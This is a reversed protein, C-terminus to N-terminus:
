VAAAGGVIEAIEQTIAAQRAKNYSLQLEDILNGANDTAAKMAVMRAAMECSINEVVSRYVRAEIYRVMLVDIIEQAAPEYIYDWSATQGGDVVVKRQSAGDSDSAETMGPILQEITPTQTMSNVFQNRAIFLRDIQEELYANTMVETPGLLEEASPRDGFQTVSAVINLTKLRRFFVVAKTGIACIDIPINQEQFPRMHGLVARFQNANLGGCLGRDTAVIIYGVRKVPRERMFPHVYEPQGEQLHAIVDSIKDAYPRAAEMRGQAKRMKSAAVMEMAKTIKQTNQISRIQTRIEKGVAM